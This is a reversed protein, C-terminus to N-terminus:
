EMGDGKLRADAGVEWLRPVRSARFISGAGKGWINTMCGGPHEDNRGTLGNEVGHGVLVHTSQPDSRSGQFGTHIGMSKGVNSDVGTDLMRMYDTSSQLAGHGRREFALIAGVCVVFVNDKSGHARVKAAQINGMVTVQVSRRCRSIVNLVGLFVLKHRVTDSQGVPCLGM